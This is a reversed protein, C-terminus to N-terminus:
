SLSSNPRCELSQGDCGLPYSSVLDTDATNSIIKLTTKGLGLAAMLKTHTLYPNETKVLFITLEAHEVFTHYTTRHYSLSTLLPTLHLPCTLHCRIILLIRRKM